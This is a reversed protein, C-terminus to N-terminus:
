FVPVQWPGSISDPCLSFWNKLQSPKQIINEYTAEMGTLTKKGGM